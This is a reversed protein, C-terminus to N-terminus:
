EGNVAGITGDWDEGLRTPAKGYFASKDRKEKRIGYFM